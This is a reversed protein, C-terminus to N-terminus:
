PIKCGQFLDSLDHTITSIVKKRMFNLSWGTAPERFCRPISHRFQDCVAQHAPHTPGSIGSMGFWGPLISAVSLNKSTWRNLLGPINRTLPLGPPKKWVIGWPQYGRTTFLWRMTIITLMAASRNSLGLSIFLDYRDYGNVLLLKYLNSSRELITWVLNVLVIKQAM